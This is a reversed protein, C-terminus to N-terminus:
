GAPAHLVLWLAAAAVVSIAVILLRKEDSGLNLRLGSGSLGSARLPDERSPRPLQDRYDTGYRATHAFTWEGQTRQPLVRRRQYPVTHEGFHRMYEDSDILEAIFGQLGRTALIISWALKERESYVQRGLIRQVCLETFRYNNNVEYNLRRFADSTALGRIFERVTIQGIMLQSELFTQRCFSLMQQEHFIQLYAAEILDGKESVSLSRETSYLRPQEDGPLEFGPVRTNRSTPTFELLPLPM